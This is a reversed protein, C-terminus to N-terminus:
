GCYVFGKVLDDTSPFFFPSPLFFPLSVSLLWPDSADYFFGLVKLHKLCFAYFIQSFVSIIDERPSVFNRHYSLVLIGLITGKKNGSPPLRWINPESGSSPLRAGPLFGGKVFVVAGWEGSVCGSGVGLYIVCWEFALSSLLWPSSWSALFSMVPSLRKGKLCPLSPYFSPSNWRIKLLVSISIRM